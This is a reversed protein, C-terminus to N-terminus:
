ARARERSRSLLANNILIILFWAALFIIVGRQSFSVISPWKVITSFIFPYILIGLNEKSMFKKFMVGSIAGYIIFYLVAMFGFDSYTFGFITGWIYSPDLGSVNIAAFQDYWNTEASVPLPIGIFRGFDYIGLGGSLLPIDWIAQTSYYGWGSNPYELRGDLVFALRNYSAPFYGMFQRTIEFVSSKFNSSRALGIISFIAIFSIIFALGIGFLRPLNLKGRENLHLVYVCVLMAFISIFSDRSISVISNLCFLLLGSIFLIASFTKTKKLISWFSWVLFAISLDNIWGLRGNAIAESLRLKVFNGNLSSSSSYVQLISSLGVTTVVYLLNIALITNVILLIYNLSLSSTSIVGYSNTKKSIYFAGYSSICFALSCLTVFYIAKLNLFLNASENVYASYINNPIFYFCVSVLGLIAGMSWPALVFVAKGKKSKKM